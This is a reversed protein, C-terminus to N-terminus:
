SVAVEEIAEELLRLDVPKILHREFGAEKSRRIDEEMGLGSLAIGKIPVAPMNQRLHRMLDLGSGDPLSLDSVLVEVSDTQLVDLASAVSGATRIDYGLRGLLRGMLYRTDAHDEVLLIKRHRSVSPRPTPASSADITAPEAITHIEVSFTCGKDRGESAAWIQGGHATVLSKCIALGLGLGGFERTVMHSGQEFPVFIKPLVDPEIGIGTDIVDVVIQPSGNIHGENLVNHTCVTLKGHSPTFKVANKILNWFVQQLRSMDALVRSHQASLEIKLEIQKEDIDRGCVEVARHLIAHVDTPVLNLQLKGRTVRTLDLLDEILTAELEINRRILELDQRVEVPLDKQQALSGAALLAPTLPTRLEHSLMALFTDKAKNASEADQKARKAQDWAQTLTEEARKRATIDLAVGVVGIVEGHSNHLPEVHSQYVREARVSEFSGPRGELADRHATEAISKDKEEPPGFVDAVHIATEGTVVPLGAGVASTLRLDRDTSWLAAPIQASVLRLRSDREVLLQQSRRRSSRLSGTVAGLLLFSVLWMTSAFRPSAGPWGFSRTIAVTALWSLLASLIGAQFGGFWAAFTIAILFLPTIAPYFADWLVWTLGAAVAVVAISVAQSVLPREGQARM